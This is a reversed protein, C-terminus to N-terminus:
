YSPIACFGPVYERSEGVRLLPGPRADARRGALSADSTPPTELATALFAECLLGASSAPPMPCRGAVQAGNRLDFLCPVHPTGSRSRQLDLESLGGPRPVASLALSRNEAAAGVLSPGPARGPRLHGFV